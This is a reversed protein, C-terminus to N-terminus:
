TRRSHADLAQAILEKLRAHGGNEFDTRIAVPKTAYKLARLENAGSLRVYDKETTVLHLSSQRAANLLEAAESESFAHHDAFERRVAIDAGLTSLLSFFRDPHAIGSFALVRAGKLWSTDGAPVTRTTLVPGQFASRLAPLKQDGSAGQSNGIAIVQILGAQFSIPARLPGAPICRGNGIGRKADVLAISLDKALAPNQLGDDMVIVAKPGFTREVFEAGSRRDPSVVAPATRCLLLPEDGTDLHTHREPDVAVPGKLRGGYGRSLFIPKRGLDRVIAAVEVAFPTKGSGGATFNGICIVPVKARYPAGFRFRSIAALGYIWGLPALARSQWAGDNGYWWEPERRSM